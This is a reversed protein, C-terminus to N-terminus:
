NTTTRTTYCDGFRNPCELFTFGRAYDAEEETVPTVPTVPTVGAIVPSVSPM